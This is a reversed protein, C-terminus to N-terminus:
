NHLILLLLGLVAGLGKDMQDLRLASSTDDTAVESHEFLMEEPRITRRSEDNEGSDSVASEPSPTIQGTMLLLQMKQIPTWMPTRGDLTPKQWDPPPPLPLFPVYTNPVQGAPYGYILMGVYLGLSNFDTVVAKM